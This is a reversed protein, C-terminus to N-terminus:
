SGWLPFAAERKRLAMEKRTRTSQTLRRIENSDNNLEALIPDLLPIRSVTLTEEKEKESKGSGDRYGYPYKQHSSSM